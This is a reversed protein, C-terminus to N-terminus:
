EEHVSEFLGLRGNETKSKNQIELLNRSQFPKYVKCTVQQTHKTFSVHCSNRRNQSTKGGPM